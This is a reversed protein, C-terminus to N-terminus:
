SLLYMTFCLFIQSDIQYVRIIISLLYGRSINQKRFFNVMKANIFNSGVNLSGV